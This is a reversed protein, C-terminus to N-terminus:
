AARRVTLTVQPGAEGVAHWLPIPALGDVVLTRRGHRTAAVALTELRVEIAPAAQWWEGTATAVLRPPESIGYYEQLVAPDAASVGILVIQGDDTAMFHEAAPTGYVSNRYQLAFQGAPLPVNVVIRGDAARGVLEWRVVDPKGAIAAVTSASLLVAVITLGIRRGWWRARM